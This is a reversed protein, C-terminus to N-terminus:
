ARPPLTLGDRGEARKRRERERWRRRACLRCCRQTKVPTVVIITNEPTFEHGHKCHTKVANHHRGHRVKDHQNESPTGYSLNALTNNCRDGDLHRTEYGEPRPGTFAALVLSHVHHMKARQDKWLNVRPYGNRGPLAKLIRGKIRGYGVQRPLSRVRGLDSVEYLGEYGPVPLWRETADTM